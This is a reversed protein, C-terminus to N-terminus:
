ITNRQEEQYLFISLANECDQKCIYKCYKKILSPTVHEYTPYKPELYVWEFLFNFKRIYWYSTNPSQWVHWKFPNYFKM